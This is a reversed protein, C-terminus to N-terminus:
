DPAGAVVTFPEKCFIPGHNSNGGPGIDRCDQVNNDSHTNNRSTIYSGNFAEDISPDLSSVQYIHREVVVDVINEDVNANTPAIHLKFSTSDDTSDGVINDAWVSYRSIPAGVSNQNVNHRGSEAAINDEIDFYTAGCSRYTFMHGQTGGLGKLFTHSVSVNQAGEIRANHTSSNWIESDLLALNNIMPCNYGVFIVGHTGGQTRGLESGVLELKSFYLGNPYPTASCDLSSDRYCFDGEKSVEVFGDNIGGSYYNLDMDHFGVHLYSMGMSIGPSRLGTITINKAWGVGIATAQATSLYLDNCAGDRGVRIQGVVPRSDADNGFPEILVNEEDYDICLNDSWSEGRRFMVRKNEFSGISPMTTTQTAGSPCPTDGTWTSSTSVCITNAGSFQTDAATVVVSVSDDDYDGNANQARVKVTYTCTGSSYKTSSSTCMFTHSAMPGGIQTQATLGSETHTTADVDDFDFYYSLLRFVDSSLALNTDTTDKANFIVTCPHVCTTRSATIDATIVGSGGGTGPASGDGDKDSISTNGEVRTASSYTQKTGNSNLQAWVGISILLICLSLAARYFM